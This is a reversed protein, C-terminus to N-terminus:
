KGRRTPLFANREDETHPQKARVMAELLAPMKARECDRDTWSVQRAGKWGPIFAWNFGEATARSWLGGKVGPISTSKFNEDKLARSLQRDHAGAADVVSVAGLPQVRISIPQETKGAFYYGCSGYLSEGLYIQFGCADRADELDFGTEGPCCSPEPLQPSFLRCVGNTEDPRGSGPAHNGDSAQRQKPDLDPANGVAYLDTGRKEVRPDETGLAENKSVIEISGGAPNSVPCAMLLVLAPLLELPARFTAM